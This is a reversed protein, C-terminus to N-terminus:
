KGKYAEIEDLLRIVVPSHNLERIFWLQENTLFKHQPKKNMDIISQTYEDAMKGM